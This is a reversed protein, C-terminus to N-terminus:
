ASEVAPVPAGVLQGGPCEAAELPRRPNTIGLTGAIGGVALLGACIAVAQHFARV